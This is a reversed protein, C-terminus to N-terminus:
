NIKLLNEGQLVAFGNTNKCGSVFETAAEKLHSDLGFVSRLFSFIGFSNSEKEFHLKLIFRLLYRLPQESDKPSYEADHSTKHFRFHPTNNGNMDIRSFVVSGVTQIPTVVTAIKSQLSESNLLDILNAYGDKLRLLLEKASAENQLYKECKVPAFIVLKPSDLEQYANRFLNTIQTPRNIMDHWKGKQEMLAPADVAILVAVCEKLLKSVFKKREPSTKAAHYGGPYDQFNLQLSPKHGKKGLGFIFSRLADPEGETGQIGGTAEFTDMLTKLEILKEQLIASSEEDPTLQLNTKGINSEFQEYMATLLTTKGVGSPGLMTIKLEHM